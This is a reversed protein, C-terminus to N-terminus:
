AFMNWDVLFSVRAHYGLTEKKNLEAILATSLRSKSYIIYEQEDRKDGDQNRLGKSGQALVTHFLLKECHRGDDRIRSQEGVHVAPVLGGGGNRLEM